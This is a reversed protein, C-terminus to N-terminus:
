PRPAPNRISRPLDGFVSPSSVDRAYENYDLTARDLRLRTVRLRNLDEETILGYDHPDIADRARLHAEYSNEARRVDVRASEVAHYRTELEERAFFQHLEGGLGIGSLLILGVVVVRPGWTRVRERRAARASRARNEAAEREGIAREVDTNPIGVEAASASLEERTLTDEREQRFTEARGILAAADKSTFKM